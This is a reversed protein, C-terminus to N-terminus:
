QRDYLLQGQGADGGSGVCDDGSGGIPGDSMM